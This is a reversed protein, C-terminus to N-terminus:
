LTQFYEMLKIIDRITNQGILAHRAFVDDVGYSAFAIKPMGDKKILVLLLFANMNHSFSKDVKILECEGKLAEAAAHCHKCYTTFNPLDYEWPQCGKVYSQHHVHLETEADGCLQCTFNDRQLVELRRKQWRPDKLKESYTKEKAM